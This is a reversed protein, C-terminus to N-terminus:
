FRTLLDGEKHEPTAEEQYSFSLYRCSCEGRKKADRLATAIMRLRNDHCNCLENFHFNINGLDWDSPVEIVLDVSARLVITRRRCCCDRSHPQGLKEHCYFCEDPPGDPRIGNTETVLITYQLLM